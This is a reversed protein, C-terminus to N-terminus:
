TYKGLGYAVLGFPEAATMTHTGGPVPLVGVERGGVSAWAVDVPNGDLSLAVGPSRVVQVYSQGNNDPNYSSPAVFIYNDRFQEFPVLVTMAPDGRSADPEPYAQGLLYQGVMVPNSGRVSFASSAMFEVWRNADLTITGVGGQPPEVVVETADFAAVVRVLNDGLEGGDIMPRSVFEKGWTQVPPLQVELHDCAESTYPVYACVHGGFVQVPQDALVRSGTLDHEHEYCTEISGDDHYGPRGPTCDPPPAGAITAVEGPQLTLEIWGGPPTAGFRGGQDEATYGTVQVRLLTPTPAVAVVSFYNAWKDVTKPFGYVESLPVYTLNVYDGTLVHSPLLLTADNTYSFSSGGDAGYEFPNFQSVTVPQDARLRYAGDAVVISRWDSPPVAQSQGDIWPLAIEALGGPPVESAHVQVGARTVEVQAPTGNPNGVVVRFDFVSTDLNPSNALPTPWYECGVYSDTREALGCADECFGSAGCASGWEACNRAATWKAGTPSCIMSVPGECRRSGPACAVCGLGPDCAEPCTTEQERTTGDSGCRYHVNGACSWTGPNCSLGGGGTGATGGDFVSTGGSGGQGANGAAGIVDGGGASCAAASLGLVTAWALRTMRM